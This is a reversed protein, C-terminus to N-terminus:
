TRKERRVGKFRGQKKQDMFERAPMDAEMENATTLVVRETRPPERRDRPAKALRYAQATRWHRGINNIRAISSSRRQAADRYCWEKSIRRLARGPGGVVIVDTM